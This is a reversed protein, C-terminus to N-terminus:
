ELHAQHPTHCVRNRGTKKAEYLAADAAATLSVADAGPQALAVGASITVTLEPAIHTVDLESVSIRLREAVRIGDDLETAPLIVAFEEGGVRCAIDSTRCHRALERAVVRLVADGTLHSHEDNIRKFFDIDSIVLCLPEDRLEAQILGRALQADFHRRNALGTLSDTHALREMALREGALRRHQRALQVLHLQAGGSELLPVAAREAELRAAAVQDEREVSADRLRLEVALLKKHMGLASAVDESREYAEVLLRLTAATDYTLEWQDFLALARLLYGIARKLDGRVAYAMGAANLASALRHDLEVEGARHLADDAIRVADDIRGLWCLPVVQGALAAPERSVDGTRRTRDVARTFDALASHFLERAADAESAKAAQVGLLSRVEGCNVLAINLAIDDGVSEALEAAAHHLALADSLRGMTREGNGLATLVHAEGSRDGFRRFGQLAAELYVIAGGPDGLFELAIGFLHDCYALGLEDNIKSAANHAQVMQPYAVKPGSTFLSVRAQSRLARAVLVPDGLRCAADMAETIRPRATRPDTLAVWEVLTMLAEVREHETTAAALASMLEVPWSESAM